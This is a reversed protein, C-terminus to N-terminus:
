APIAEAPPGDHACMRRRWSYQSDMAQVAVRIPSRSERQEPHLLYRRQQVAGHYFRFRLDRGSSPSFLFRNM